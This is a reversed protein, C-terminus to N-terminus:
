CSAHTMMTERLRGVHGEMSFHAQVRERAAQGLRKALGSEELIRCIALAMGQVDKEKVLFGTEGDLVVDPIGAHYTAIVPLAAAGAELVAVPTGESDGNHAVISHQVFALANQMEVQVQKPSIVGLFIVSDKIGWAEVMNQCIALLPGDGAMRLKASPHKGLVERFAMLTLYPAKKDVFRGVAFFQLKSYTPNNGLFINDPACPNVVLKDEPCGLDLLKQRMAKSVVIVAKAQEFIRQYAEKYNDLTEYHSADMGHFHAVMPIGAKHCIPMMEAATQGFEALVVDIKNKKLLRTIAGDLLFTRYGKLVKMMGRELMLLRGNVIPKNDGYHTPKLGSHLVLTAPLREIHAKIFTESYANASPVAIAIRPTKLKSTDQQSVM